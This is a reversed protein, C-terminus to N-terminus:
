PVLDVVPRGENHLAMTAAGLPLEAALKKVRKVIVKSRGITSLIGKAKLRTMIRSLTDANLALYEAIDTRSLPMDCTISDNAMRGTRVAMELFFAAVRSESGLDALRAIHLVARAHLECAKRCIATNLQQEADPFNGLAEPRVRLLVGDTMAVLTIGDLPPALDTRFADGPYLLALLQRESGQGAASLALVGSRLVYVTDDALGLGIEQRKRTKVVSGLSQLLEALQRRDLARRNGAAKAEPQLASGAAERVTKKTHTPKM